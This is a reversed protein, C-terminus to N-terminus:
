KNIINYLFGMIKNFKMARALTTVHCLYQSPYEKNLNHTKGCCDTIISQQNNIYLDTLDIFDIELTKQHGILINTGTNNIHDKVQITEHKKIKTSITADFVCLERDTTINFLNYIKIFNTPDVVENKKLPHNKPM